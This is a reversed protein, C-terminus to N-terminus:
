RHPLSISYGFRPGAEALFRVIDERSAKQHFVLKRPGAQTHALLVNRSRLAFWLLWVGLVGFASLWFLFGHMHGGRTFILFLFVFPFLAVLLVAVGALATVVPREAASACTLELRHIDTRPVFSLRRRGDMEAVGEANIRVSAFELHAEEPGPKPIM